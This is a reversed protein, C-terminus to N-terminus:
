QSDGAGGRGQLRGVHGAIHNSILYADRVESVGPGQVVGKTGLGHLSNNFHNESQTQSDTQCIRASCAGRQRFARQRGGRRGGGHGAACLVHAPAGAYSSLRNDSSAGATSQVPVTLPTQHGCSWERMSCNSTCRRRLRCHDHWLMVIVVNRPSSAAEVAM